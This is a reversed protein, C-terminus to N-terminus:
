KKRMTRTIENYFLSFKNANDDPFSQIFVDNIHGIKKISVKIKGDKKGILVSSGAVVCRFVEGTMSIPQWGRGSKLIDYAADEPRRVPREQPSTLREREVVEM